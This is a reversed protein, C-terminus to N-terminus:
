FVHHHDVCHRQLKRTLTGWGSARAGATIQGWTPYALVSVSLSPLFHHSSGQVVQLTTTMPQTEPGFHSLNRDRMGPDLFPIHQPILTGDKQTTTTGSVLFPMHQPRRLAISVAVHLM